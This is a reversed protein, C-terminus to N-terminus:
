AKIKMDIAINKAMATKVKKALIKGLEWAVSEDNMSEALSEAFDNSAFYKKVAAQIQPQYETLDIQSMIKDAIIKNMDINM